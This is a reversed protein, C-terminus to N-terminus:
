CFHIKILGKTYFNVYIIILARLLFITCFGDINYTFLGHFFVVYSVHVSECSIVIVDSIVPKNTKFSMYLVYCFLSNNDNSNIFLSSTVYFLFIQISFHFLKLNYHIKKNSYYYFIISTIYFIFFTLINQHQNTNFFIFFYFFLYM